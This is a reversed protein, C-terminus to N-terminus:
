GSKVLTSQIVTSAGLPYGGKVLAPSWGDPQHHTLLRHSRKGEFSGALRTGELPKM